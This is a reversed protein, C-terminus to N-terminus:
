RSSLLMRRACRAAMASPWASPKKSPLPLNGESRPGGGCGSQRGGCFCGSGKGPLSICVTSGEWVAESTSYGSMIEATTGRGMPSHQLPLGLAAAPCDQQKWAAHHQQTQTLLSGRQMHPIGWLYLATMAAQWHELISSQVNLVASVLRHPQCGQLARQWARSGLRM